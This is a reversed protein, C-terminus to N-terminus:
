RAAMEEAEMVQEGHRQGCKWPNEKGVMCSAAHLLLSQLLCTPVVCRGMMQADMSSCCASWPSMMSVAEQPRERGAAEEVAFQLVRAAVVFGPLGVVVVVVVLRAPLNYEM